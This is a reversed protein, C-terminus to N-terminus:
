KGEESPLIFPKKDKSGANKRKNEIFEEELAAKDKVNHDTGHKRDYDQSHNSEKQM